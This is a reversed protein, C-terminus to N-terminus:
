GVEQGKRQKDVDIGMDKLIQEHRGSVNVNELNKPLKQRARYLDLIKHILSIDRHKSLLPTFVFRLFDFVMQRARDKLQVKSRNALKPEEEADDAEKIQSWHPGYEEVLRLLQHSEEISWPNRQRPRKTDAVTQEPIPERNQLYAPLPRRLTRDLPRRQRDARSTSRSRGRVIEANQETRPKKSPRTTIRIDREFASEETENVLDEDGHHRKRTNERSLRKSTSVETSRIPSVREANRQRDLFMTRSSDFETYARAATLGQEGVGVGNEQPRRAQRLNSSRTQGQRREQSQLISATPCTRKKLTQLHRISAWSIFNRKPAAPETASLSELQTSSKGGQVMAAASRSLRSCPRASPKRAPTPRFSEDTKQRGLSRRPESDSRIQSVATDCYEQAKMQNNIQISAERIWAALEVVFEPWSFAAKLISFDVPMSADQWFSERIKQIREQVQDRFEEPLDGAEDQLGDMEWGRLGADGFGTSRFIDELITEPDMEGQLENMTFIYRQTRIELGIQFIQGRTMASSSESSQSLLFPSPFLSDIIDLPMNSRTGNCFYIVDLSLQALNAKQFIGDPQWKLNEVSQLTDTAKIVNIFHKTGFHKKYGLYSDGWSEELKIKITSNTIHRKLQPYSSGHQNWLLLIRDSWKELKPLADLMLGPDPQHPQEKVRMMHLRARSSNTPDLSSRPNSINSTSIRQRTPIKVPSYPRSRRLSSSPKRHHLSRTSPLRANHDIPEEVTSGDNSEPDSDSGSSISPEQPPHHLTSGDIDDLNEEELSRRPGDSSIIPVASWDNFTSHTIPCPQVCSSSHAGVPIPSPRM